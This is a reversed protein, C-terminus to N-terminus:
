LLTHFRITIEVNHTFRNLRKWKNPVTLNGCEIKWAARDIRKGPIGNDM